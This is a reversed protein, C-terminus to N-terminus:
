RILSMRGTKTVTEQPMQATVRYVYRGSALSTAPLQVIRSPGASMSEASSQFVQRGLMDYVEVQVSAPQPLDVVISTSENFPNPYNGRLRFTAPLGNEDENAIHSHPVPEFITVNEGLYGVVWISGPFPDDDDQIAVDLSAGGISPFLIEVGDADGNTVAEGTADLQAIYVEGNLGVSIISGKLEGDFNDARYEAIGNTSPFYNALAGDHVGSNRFDCEAAYAEGVPVPPWDPPLPNDGTTSTRWVNVGDFSTFLGAGAPNGRVPAPHGAYYPHGPDVERIYHLGNLNNVKEDNGSATSSGPELPDYDNTCTGPSTGDPYEDEGMPFGGWGVNAGNDITYMRGEHGSTEMIVIDYANRFGTAHLQVPGNPIVKAQNLGNNGGFPDNTDVGDYGVADPDDIGNANLRTPDDLTPIDYIYKEESDGLIPMADIATLDVALIAGSLAYETVLAFNNSPAGANTMGGSAVYLINNVEDLQLGNTSHNEENRPLGRVLDVKVWSGNELTLRHVVGSNTDLGSDHFVGGGGARPDSSTAYIIPNEATGVVLIGTLQREISMDITWGEQEVTGTNPEGDDDHNTTNVKLTFIKETDTIQFDQSGNRVYNYAQILGNKQGIYLRGDPGFSIATPLVLSIDNLDSNEFLFDAGNSRYVDIDPRLDARFEPIPGLGQAFLSPGGCCLLVVVSFFKISYNNFRILNILLDRGYITKM